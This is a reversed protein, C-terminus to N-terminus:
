SPETTPPVFEVRVTLPGTGDSGEASLAVKEGFVSPDTVRAYWKLTDVQLRNRAILNKELERIREEAHMILRMQTLSKKGKASRLIRAYIAEIRERWMTSIPDIGNGADRALHSVAKAEAKRARAYRKANEPTAETYELFTIFPLGIHRLVHTVQAGESIRDSVYDVVKKPDWVKPRGPKRDEPAVPAASLDPM